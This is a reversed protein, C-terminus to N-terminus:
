DHCVSGGSTFNLADVLASSLSTNTFHVCTDAPLLSVAGWSSTLSCFLQLISFSHCHQGGGMANLWVWVDVCLGDPIRLAPGFHAKELPGMQYRLSVWSSFCKQRWSGNLLTGRKGMEDRKHVSITIGNDKPQPPPKWRPRQASVRAMEPYGM